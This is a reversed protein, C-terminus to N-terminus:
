KKFHTADVIYVKTGNLLYIKKTKEDISFDKLDDLNVFQYQSLFKGTKDFIALRKNAPELIYIFELDQSVVIKKPSTLPPDIVDLNFDQKEGKLYKLVQGNAELVYIQGDISLSVPYSFNKAAVTWKERGSFGSESKTYRYIQSDKKSIFYYKNNYNGTAAINQAGEPLNISLSSLKNADVNLDIISSDNLYFVNKSNDSFPLELYNIPQSLDTIATVSNDELNLTYITKQGSDGSFIKNNILEINSINAQNNLNSFDALESANDIKVVHGIVEMQESYKMMIKTYYDKEAQTDQPLQELLGKLEDLIKKAGEENSYLLNADIQNQKQEVVKKLENLAAEGAIKKNKLDTYIINTALLFLCVCAVSLIIKNRKNLNKFWFWADKIKKSTQQQSDRIKKKTRGALERAQQKNTCVKFIYLLLNFINAFIDRLFLFIRKGAAWTQKKKFFIKDKIFINKNYGIAPSTKIKGFGAAVFGSIKKFNIIGSPTLLKETKEETSNLQSISNQASVEAVEERAEAGLPKQGATNKILIGLFSVYANINGLINKIQEMAGTPSLKTIIETLQKNSLYEPLTENAIFLYGGNPISGSIVNSFVKTAIAAKVQPRKEKDENKQNSPAIHPYKSNQGIDAVRYKIEAIEQNVNRGQRLDNKMEERHRYFLLTRNKGINSFHLENEYIIGVTISFASPNIKIKERELFDALEKNTKALAAEFIHEVKLASIRERLIIKENQYYNHNLTNVLFNIIKLAESKKSNIEILAFLKGALAEKNSDPQAIFIDSAPSASQASNLMLSAIKYYM